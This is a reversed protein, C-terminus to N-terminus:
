ISRPFFNMPQRIGVRGGGLPPPFKIGKLVNVACRQVSVPLKSETVGANVVHGSAGITFNFLLDGSAKNEKDLEQQYCYRFQPLNDRLIRAVLSADYDGIVVTRSPIGAAAITKKDILGEAGTSVNIKGTTAGDLAGVNQSVSTTEIGKVDGGLASGGVGIESESLTESVVGKTDGGKALLKNLTGKFNTPKYADVRGRTRSSTNSRKRATRVTSKSGGINKSTQRKAIKKRPRGGKRPTATSKSPRNNAARAVKQKNANQTTQAVSKPQEKIPKLKKPQRPTKPQKKEPKPKSVRPKYTFKQREYLITAVREPLKEKELEEDINVSNLASLLSFIIFVFFAFYKRTDHDRKFLPAAKVRPPASTNRIYIELHNNKLKIIDQPSLKIPGPIKKAVQGEFDEPNMIEDTVTTVEYGLTDLIQVENGQISVFEVKESQSLYPYEIEKDDPQFGVLKYTGKKFPLYDVSYIRDNHIIIIEVANKEIEWKFIPYVKDADEFIYESFEAKPDKALPYAVYPIDDESSEIKINEPSIRFEYDGSQVDKVEPVDVPVAQKLEDAKSKTEELIDLNELSLSELVPPLLDSKQYVKFTFKTNSFEVTDGISLNKCLIREGNIKTGNRSNMDYIRGGNEHIEVVAHIVDIDMEPITLDCNKGRGILARKNSLVVGKYSSNEPILEYLNKLKKTELNM